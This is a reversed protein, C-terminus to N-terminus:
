GKTRPVAERAWEPIQDFVFGDREWTVLDGSRRCAIFGATDTKVSTSFVYYKEGQRIICPDHVPAFDGQMRENISGPGAAARGLGAAALLVGGVFERRAVKFQAHDARM